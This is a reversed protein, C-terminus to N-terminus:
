GEIKIGVIEMGQFLIVCKTIKEDEDRSFSIEYFEGDNDTTEFSMSEIKVPELEVEEDDNEQIGFLTGDKVFFKLNIIEGEMSFEYKGSIEEYLKETDVQKEQVPDAYIAPLAFFLCLVFVILIGKSMREM